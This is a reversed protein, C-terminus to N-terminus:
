SWPWFHKGPPMPPRPLECPVPKSYPDNPDNSISRPPPPPDNIRAYHPKYSESVDRISIVLFIAGLLIPGIAQIRHRKLFSIAANEITTSAFEQAHESTATASMLALLMLVFPDVYRQFLDNNAINAVAFGLIAGIFIIRQRPRVGFLLSMGSLAGLMMLGLMVPSTHGITPFREAMGWLGTHRAAAFDNTPTILGLALAVLLAGILPARKKRWSFILLPIWTAAFFTSWIGFLALIFVIATLNYTHFWQQFVPPVLGGWYRLFLLLLFLAPLTSLFSLLLNLAQKKPTSFFLQMLSPNTIPVAGPLNDRTPEPCIWASIWLLGATWVHIQRVFVMALLIAGGAVMARATMRPRLAVLLVGLVGLWAIDDPLLWAGSDIVYRCLVFPLCVAAAMLPTTRRACTYGLLGILAAAILLSTVELTVISPSIFRAVAAILIHYGPTTASEYHWLDFNPWDAAFQNIAFRHYLEQDYFVRAPVRGSAIFAGGVLAFAAALFVAVVAPPFPRTKPSPEPMRPSRHYLYKSAM